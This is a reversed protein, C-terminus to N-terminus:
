IKRVVSVTTSGLFVASGPLLVCHVVGGRNGAALVDLALPEDDVGGALREATEGGGGGGDEGALVAGQVGGVDVHAVVDHDDVAFLDNEGAELGALLEIAAVGTEGTTQAFLGEDLQKCATGLGDDFLGDLAHQGLALHAALHGGLELDVLTRLM